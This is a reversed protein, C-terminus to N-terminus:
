KVVMKTARNASKVIYIGKNLAISEKTTPHAIHTLLEGAISYVEVASTANEIVLTNNLTYVKINTVDINDVTTSTGNSAAVYYIINKDSGDFSQATQWNGAEDTVSYIFAIYFVTNAEVNEITYTAEGNEIAFAPTGAGNIMAHVYDIPKSDDSSTLTITVNNEEYTINFQAPVGTVGDFHARSGTSESTRSTTTAAVNSSNDSVNGANDVAKITFNYSTGATLGKVTIIGDTAVCTTSISNAEDTVNFRNVPDTINDTAEVAITVSDYSVNDLTAKSMVPAETDEVASGCSGWEIDEVMGFNVEGPMMVYIPTYFSPETTSEITATMSKKDDAITINTRIDYGETGNVHCFSGGFGTLNEGEITLQYLNEGIKEASFLINNEGATLTTQCYQTASAMVATSTLATACLLNLLLRKM